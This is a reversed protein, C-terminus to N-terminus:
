KAILITKLKASGNKAVQYVALGNNGIPVLVRDAHATDLISNSPFGSQTISKSLKKLANTAQASNNFVSREVARDVAHPLNSNIAKKIAPIGAKNAFFQLNMKLSGGAKKAVKVTKLAKFGKGIAGFAVGTIAGMLAAKGVGSWTMKKGSVACGIMYTVTDFLAGGIAAAVFWALHGDDDTMNVPNNLCYAFLNDEILSDQDVELVGTDDANLWRGIEPDYYRSGVYFLGTEEDYYYGRYRLSNLRGIHTDSVIENGGADKIGLIKGWADYTYLVQLIGAEDYIKTVDGRTNTVVYYTAVNNSGDVTQIGKLVGSADYLYHLEVDGKKEYLL